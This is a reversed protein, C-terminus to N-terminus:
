DYTTEEIKDNIYEFVCDTVIKADINAYYRKITDYRVFDDSIMALLESVIVRRKYIEDFLYDIRRM